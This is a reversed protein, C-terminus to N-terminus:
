KLVPLFVLITGSHSEGGTHLEATKGLAQGYITVHRGQCVTERMFYHKYSTMIIVEDDSAFNEFYVDNEASSLVDKLSVTQSIQM